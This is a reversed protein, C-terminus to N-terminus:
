DRQRTENSRATMRWRDSTTMSSIHCGRARRSQAVRCCAPIKISHNVRLSVSLCFSPSHWVSLPLDCFEKVGRTSLSITLHSHPIAAHGFHSHSNHLKSDSLTSYTERVPQSVAVLGASCGSRWVDNLIVRSIISSSNLSFMTKSCCLYSM